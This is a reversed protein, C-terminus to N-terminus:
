SVTTSVSGLTGRRHKRKRKRRHERQEDNNEEGEEGEGEEDDEGDVIFGEQIKRAEEPDDEEEESSDTSMANEGEDDSGQGPDKQPDDVDMLDPDATAPWPASSHDM